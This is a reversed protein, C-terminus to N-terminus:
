QDIEAHPEGAYLADVFHELRDLPVTVGYYKQIHAQAWLRTIESLMQESTQERESM